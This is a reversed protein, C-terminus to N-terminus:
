RSQRMLLFLLRRQRTDAKKSPGASAYWGCHHGRYTRWVHALTDAAKAPDPSQTVRYRPGSGWSREMWAARQTPTLRGFRVHRWDDFNEILRAIVGDSM